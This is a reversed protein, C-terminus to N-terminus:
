QRRADLSEQLDFLVRLAADLDRIDFGDSMEQAAQRIAGDIREFAATGDRTLAVIRSRKHDPNQRFRVLGDAEADDVIKQIQQRALGRARAIQPVTRPGDVKMSRLLAWLGITWRPGDNPTLSQLLRHLRPVQLLLEYLAEGEPTPDIKAM